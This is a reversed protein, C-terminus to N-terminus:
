SRLSKRLNASQTVIIGDPNNNTQPCHSSASISLATREHCIYIYVQDHARQMRGNCFTDFDCEIM